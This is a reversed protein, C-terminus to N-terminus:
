SRAYQQSTSSCTDSTSRTILSVARTSLGPPRYRNSVILRVAFLLSRVILSICSQGSVRTTSSALWSQSMNM